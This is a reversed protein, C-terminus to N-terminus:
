RGTSGFGGTGRESEDADFADVIQLEPKVIPLFVLQAIRDGPVIPYDDVGRNLCSVMLPGQYDSDILGTGNGLVIGHKHGLGSRPLIKACYRNHNIFIAIGTPILQCERSKLVITEELCAILDMAASGDTQYQPIEWTSGLRKDLIKVKISSLEPKNM